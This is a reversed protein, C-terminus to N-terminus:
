DLTQRVKYKMEYAYAMNILVQDDLASRVLILGFPEGSDRYGSPLTIAPYDEPAYVGSLENSISLIADLHHESM